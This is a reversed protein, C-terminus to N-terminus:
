PVFAADLDTAARDSTLYANGGIGVLCLLLVLWAAFAKVRISLDRLFRM